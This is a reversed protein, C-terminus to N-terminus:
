LTGYILEFGEAYRSKAQAGRYSAFGRVFEDNVYLRGLEIQSKYETVMRVKCAVDADELVIRLSASSTTQNWPAEYGLLTRGRFARVSEESTVVHDQHTDSTAHTFILDPDVSQRIKILDDLIAQRHSDMVRVAYQLAIVDVDGLHRMSNRFETELRDPASGPPLSAEARSLAVATIQVDPYERRIRALTGGCGMEIDDTHAGLALVRRIPGM